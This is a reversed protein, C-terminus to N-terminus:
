FYILIYIPIDKKDRIENKRSEGEENNTKTLFLSSSKRKRSHFEQSLKPIRQCCSKLIGKNRVRSKQNFSFNPYPYNKDNISISIPFNFNNNIIINNNHIENHNSSFPSHHHPYVIWSMATSALLCLLLLIYTFLLFFVTTQHIINRSTM